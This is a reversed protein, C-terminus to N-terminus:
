RILTINGKKVVESGSTLTAKLVWAFVASNLAAGKYTGDWCVSQDTTQFIMEGWRDYITFQMEKICAGYACANDNVNDGNPSFASPVFLECDADFFCNEIIVQQRTLSPCGSGDTATLTVTYTGAAPYTHSPNQATANTGDGFAWSWSSLPTSSNATFAVNERSCLTDSHAISLTENSYRLDDYGALYSYSDHYGVGFVSAYFGSDSVLTHMGPALTLHAYSYSPNTPIATFTIAANDLTVFSAHATRVIVNAYHASYNYNTIGSQMSAFIAKHSIFQMPRHLLFTADGQTSCSQGFKLQAVQIPLTSTIKCPNATVHDYHEGKNLVIPPNCNIFVQTGNASALIRFKDQSNPIYPSVLYENGWSELPYNQDYLHNTALCQLNAYVAGSFVAVKKGDRASVTTGSLDGYAQVQYLQGKNMTVAFPIGAPHLGYTFTSPTIDITTNDETAIVVFEPLGGANLDDPHTMVMYQGGLETVPLIISAESYYYRHHQVSLNIPDASTVKIGYDVVAESGTYYFVGQPLFVETVQGAAATFNQTYGTTPMSIVGTTNVDCSIYFSFKPQGNASLLVNEMFGVWFETGKTTPAAAAIKGYSMIALACSFFIAKAKM